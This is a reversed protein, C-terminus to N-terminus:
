ASTEGFQSEHETVIYGRMRSRDFLQKEDEAIEAAIAPTSLHKACAAQASVDPYWIELLVDFDPEAIKGQRDPLPEPYRRVYKSVFGNLYKEGIVRHFTEYYSRFEDTSMGAKRHLPMIFKIV